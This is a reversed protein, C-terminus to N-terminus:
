APVAVARRRTRKALVVALLAPVLAFTSLLAGVGPPAALGLGAALALGGLAAGLANAVNFASQITASALAPADGAAEMVVSQVSPFFTLGLAGVGFVVLPAFIPSRVAFVAAVLLGAQVALLGVVVRRPDFRDSLRGGAITGATMGLGFVALLIPITTPRFGALDTLMPTIFTYFAFLGSAGLVVTGLVLLVAPKRLAAFEATLSPRETVAVRPVTVFIGAMCLLGVGAILFFVLRWGAFGGLATAAPVGALNALTLGLMMSAVASSRRERPVLSAAVLAGVGFFAGHPLGSLFRAVLLLGFNPAVAALAHGLAFLGMFLLLATRRRLRVAAISLLPAGVVVGVAYVTVLNGAAPLSVALDTAIDPLLGMAAFETLGIAFAGLALAFIAIPM